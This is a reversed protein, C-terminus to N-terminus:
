SNIVPPLPLPLPLITCSMFYYQPHFSHSRENKVEVSCALSHDAEGGPQKVEPFSAGQLWQILPHNPGLTPISARFIFSTEIVALFRFYIGRYHFVANQLQFSFPFAPLQLVEVSDGTHSTLLGNYTGLM